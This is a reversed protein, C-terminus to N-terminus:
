YLIENQPAGCERGKVGGMGLGWVTLKRACKLFARGTSQAGVMLGWWEDCGGGLDILFM